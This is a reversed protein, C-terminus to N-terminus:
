GDFGDDFIADADIPTAIFSGVDFDGVRGLGVVVGHDNIAAAKLLYPFGADGDCQELLDYAVGGAYVFAKFTLTAFDQARGVITGDANIGYAAGNPLGLLAGPIATAVGGQFVVPVAHGDGAVDMEGVATGAEDIGHAMSAVDDVGAAIADIGATGFTGTTAHSVAFIPNWGGVITGADNIASWYAQTDPGHAPVGDDVLGGGASWSFARFAGEQSALGVVVGNNNIDAPNLKYAQDDGIVVYDGPHAADWLLATTQAGDETITSAYGVIQGLDNIAAATAEDRGAPRPLTIAQQGDFLFAQNAFNADIYYGVAQGADNVDAVYVGNSDPITIAALHYHPAPAGAIAAAAPLVALLLSPFRRLHM